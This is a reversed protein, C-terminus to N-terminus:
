EVLQAYEPMDKVKGFFFKELKTANKYYTTTENNYSRCNDFILRADYVFEEMNSYKDAELKAEMTSLDMPEKIVEYYDAVEKRSVPQAFPWSSPHGQMDSLLQQMVAFESSRKPRRALEDMEPTWGAEKLGPIKLPDIKVTDDDPDDTLTKRFIELGSRVVNSSSFQQIKRAIAARQAILLKNSDLYRWGKMMKCMMITGGEYDKIYGMWIKRDLSIEKTFGQKKFYGIAYNDAYTLFYEVNPMANRVYDKLHNMLHAGYGKVQEQSAIACFVIEAFGRSEFPRIAIGGVVTLGEKVIAISVHSKDFVLRSIYERPMKPLQKQFINKLGMLIILHESSNDNNVVRFKITGDLEEQVAPREKFSYEKRDIVFKRIVGTPAAEEDKSEEKEDEAKVVDTSIEDTAEEKTKEDEQGNEDKGTDDEDEKKVKDDVDMSDEDDDAHEENDSTKDELTVDNSDEDVKIKKTATVNELPSSAKRKSDTDTIEPMEIKWTADVRATIGTIRTTTERNPLIGLSCIFDNHNFTLTSRM